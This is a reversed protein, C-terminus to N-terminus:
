DLESGVQMIADMASAGMALAHERPISSGQRKCAFSCCQGTGVLQSVQFILVM